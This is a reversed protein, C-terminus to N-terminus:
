NRFILSDSEISFIVDIDFVQQGNHWLNILASPAVSHLADSISLRMEIGLLIFLLTYQRTTCWIIPLITNKKIIHYRIFEQYVCLFDVVVTILANQKENTFRSYSTFVISNFVFITLKKM